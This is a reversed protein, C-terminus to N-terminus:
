NTVGLMIAVSIVFLASATIVTGLVLSVSSATESLMDATRRDSVPESAAATLRLMVYIAFIKVIPVVCIGILSIIGATGVASKMLKTSSLVTEVTESLIGGVAPVLTGVAFKIGKLAVADFVPASFGYIATIGTFITLSATLIWKAASRVFNTFSSIKLKPTINGVIGLVASFVIMPVICKDTLFTMAYVGASLIPHFAQAATVSGSSAILAVFVPALKTVFECINNIIKTGYGVASFFIKLASATMLTYCAFYATESTEDKEDSLIKLVSSLVAVALLTVMESRSEKIEKFVTELGKELLSLPNLSFKGTAIEEATQNYFDEGEIFMHSEEAFVITNFFLLIVALFVTTKKM